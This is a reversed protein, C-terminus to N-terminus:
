IEQKVTVTADPPVGPLEQRSGDPWIIVLSEVEGEMGLGFTVPLEVQSLYSRTPMVLRTQTVGGARLQVRAGIAESNPPRGKLKVRLWHHGTQQDNRLLLPRGGTQTIVIDLDGDGDIDAYSAGRGVMPRSLDGVGTKEVEVFCPRGECGGNWFLQAPQRYHQSAQIQNIEEELHGNAQLFDLRGDLDYDFFFLGFSLV